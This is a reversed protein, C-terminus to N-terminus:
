ELLVKDLSLIEFKRVGCAVVDSYFGCGMIICPATGAGSILGTESIKLYLYCENNKFSDYQCKITDKEGNTYVVALKWKYTYNTEFNSCSILIVCLLLYFIHRGFQYILNKM